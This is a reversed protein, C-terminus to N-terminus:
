RQLLLAIVCCVVGAAAALQQWWQQQREQSQLAAIGSFTCIFNADGEGAEESDQGDTSGDYLYSRVAYM